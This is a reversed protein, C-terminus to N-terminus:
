KMQQIGSDTRKGYCIEHYDTEGIRCSCPVGFAYPKRHSHVCCPIESLVEYETERVATQYGLKGYEFKISNVGFYCPCVIRDESDFSRNRGDCYIDKQKQDANIQSDFVAATM